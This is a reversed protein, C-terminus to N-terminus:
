RMSPLFLRMIKEGVIKAEPYTLKEVLEELSVWQGELIEEAQFSLTGEVLAPFFYILKNTREEILPEPSLIKVIRLGTEEFLERTASELPTEGAEGRGKPFGWHGGNVHHVILVKKGQIPIIGYAKIMVASSLPLM